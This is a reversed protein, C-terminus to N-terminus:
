RPERAGVHLDPGRAARDCGAPAAGCTQTLYEILWDELPRRTDWSAASLRVPIPEKHDRKALLGMVLTVALVTKGAGPARTIALCRSRLARYYAVVDNLTGTPM